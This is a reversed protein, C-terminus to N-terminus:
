ARPRRLEAEDIRRVQGMGQTTQYGVGAYAAFDALVNMIGLWYRDKNTASFMAVGVFGVQKGGDKARILRTRGRFQSLAMCEEAFRRADPALQMSAFANWKDVLGGFVSGPLPLPLSQGRGKFATPAVFRLAIRPAPLERALLYPAALAEYSSQGARPHVATNLTASTVTFSVGDLDLTSPPAAAIARLADTVDARLSTYRLWLPEGPEALVQPGQRRGGFVNSCTFPKLGQAEHLATALVHPLLRLLQAHSARGLDRPLAVKAASTFTLVLSALM